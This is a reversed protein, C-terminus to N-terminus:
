HQLACFCFHCMANMKKFNGIEFKESILAVSSTHSGLLGQQSTKIGMIFPFIPEEPFHNWKWHNDEFLPFPSVHIQTARHDNINRHVPLPRSRNFRNGRMKMWQGEMQWLRRGVCLVCYVVCLLFVCCMGCLSFCLVCLSFCLVCLSFCVVYLVKRFVCLMYCVVFFVCFLVFFVCCLVFFM